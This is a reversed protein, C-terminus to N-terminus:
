MSFYIYKLHNSYIKKLESRNITNEVTDIFRFITASKFLIGVRVITVLVPFTTVLISDMYQKPTNPERVIYVFLLFLNLFVNVFIWFQTKNIPSQNRRYGLSSWNMQVRQFTKM